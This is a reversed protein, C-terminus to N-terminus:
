HKNAGHFFSNAHLIRFEEVLQFRIIQGKEHCLKCWTFNHAKAPWTYEIIVGKAIISHLNQFMTRFSARAQKEVIAAFFIMIVIIAIVPVSSSNCTKERFAKNNGTNYNDQVIM